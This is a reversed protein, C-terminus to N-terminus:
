KESGQHDEYALATAAGCLNPTASVGRFLGNRGGPCQDRDTRCPSVGGVWTRFSTFDTPESRESEAQEFVGCFPQTKCISIGTVPGCATPVAFSSV